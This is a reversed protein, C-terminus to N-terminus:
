LHEMLKLSRFSVWGSRTVILHDQLTIDLPMAARALRDTMQQDAPSPDLSGSPHNHVVILSAAGLELARRLIERPFIPVQRLSGQSAREDSILHNKTDLYVIWVEEHGLPALRVHLYDILEQSTGILPRDFLDNRLLRL